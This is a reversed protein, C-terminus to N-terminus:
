LSLLLYVNINKFLKKIPDSILIGCVALQVKHTHDTVGASVVTGKSKVGLAGLPHKKIICV